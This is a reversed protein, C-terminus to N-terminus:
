TVAATAPAPASLTAVFADVDAAAMDWTRRRHVAAAAENMNRYLADDGLIQLAVNGFAMADPVLFGTEGNVIRDAAGGVARAVASLGAAQSEQLTWCAFDQSFSPYLHVRSARYVETMGRDGRPEVVVVNASAANKVLEMVPGLEDPIAEGKTGKHLIASYIGLRAQPMQPHVIKTWIDILWALGQQPHTTVVAHPPPITPETPPHSSAEHGLEPFPEVEATTEFFTSRVGPQVVVSRAKGKYAAAQAASIFMLAPKLSEFLGEVAPTNLYDVPGTAWLIRHKAQRATSLLGPKRFAILVDVDTSIQPDDISRWKAGECWTPYQIRNLVTVSHGRKVLAGALSAFAKEAGGLPRRASTYGDFAISDDVLVYHM